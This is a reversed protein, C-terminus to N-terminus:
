EDHAENVVVELLVLLGCDATHISGASVHRATHSAM